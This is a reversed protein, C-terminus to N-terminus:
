LVHQPPFCEKAETGMEWLVPLCRRCRLLEPGQQDWWVLSEQVPLTAPDRSEPPVSSCLGTPQLAPCAAPHICVWGHETLDSQLSSLSSRAQSVTCLLSQTKHPLVKPTHLGPQPQSLQKKCWLAQETGSLNFFAESENTFSFASSGVTINRNKCMVSAVSVPPLLKSWRHAWENRFRKVHSCLWTRSRDRSSKEPICAFSCNKLLLQEGGLPGGRMDVAWHSLWSM